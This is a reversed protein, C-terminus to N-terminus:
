GVLLCHTMLCTFKWTSSVLWKMTVSHCLAACYEVCLQLIICLCRVLLWMLIGQSLVQIVASNCM